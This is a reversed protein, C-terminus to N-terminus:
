TACLIREELYSPLLERYTMLCCGLVCSTDDPTSVVINNASVGPVQITKKYRSLMDPLLHSFEYLLSGYIVTQAPNYMSTIIDLALVIHQMCDDMIAVAWDTGADYAQRLQHLTTLKPDHAQAKAILYQVAVHTQLCGSRGCECVTANTGHDVIIHGVEGAANQRGRFLSGGASAASGVGSGLLLLAIDSSPSISLIHQEGLLSAKVDNDVVLPLGFAEYFYDHLPINHWGLQPSLLSRKNEPDVAGVVSVGMGIVKGTDINRASALRQYHSLCFQVTEEVSHRCCDYKITELVVPTSAFDMICIRFYHKDIQIGLTYLEQPVIDLMVARRGVGTSFQNTERVLNLRQLDGVIRTVSTPSMRALKALDARSVLRRTRIIELLMQTNHLRIDNQDQHEM